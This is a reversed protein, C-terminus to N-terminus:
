ELEDNFLYEIKKKPDPKKKTTKKKGGTINLCWELTEPSGKFSYGQQQYYELRKKAQRSFLSYEDVIDIITPIHKREHPKQRLIRGVSQIIDSKPSALVLTDMGPIDMGESNHVVVDTIIFNHHIPVEIDCLNINQHNVLYVDLVEVQNWDSNNQHFTNRVLERFSRRKNRDRFPISKYFDFTDVIYLRSYTSHSDSTDFFHHSTIGMRWLLYKTQNWMRKNKVELYVRGEEQSVMGYTDFYGALFHKLQHEPLCMIEKSFVFSKTQNADTLYNHSIWTSGLTWLENNSAPCDKTEYLHTKKPSMLKHVGPVLYQAKVWGFTTLFQHDASTIIQGLGHSVCVCPKPETYGFARIRPMTVFTHNVTDYAVVSPKLNRLGVTRLTFEEGTIWDVLLTNDSLCAMSFTGLLVDAGESTKLEEEKMGGMYFGVSRTEDKVLNDKLTELHARRESLILTKRKPEKELLDYLTKLLLEDRPQYNVIDTIMAAVNAKGNFMLRERGYGSGPEQGTEAKVVMVNVDADKHRKAIWTPKGLHWEFVKSLGDKRQLTASLGLSVRSTIKSLARSFVEAGTHHCEDIIVLGFRAFLEPPYDDKMALSQLSAIVIDKDEVDVVKQKILGVRADPIFQGIRERWQNMLFEKHCVVLTKKKLITSIYLSVVTKGGGCQLSIIGGRRLPDESAEIFSAVVPEQEPRVSGQFVLRPADDGTPLSDETPRGFHKLGYAKPVYIKKSSERYVPFEQVLNAGPADPNVHPKVTLKQRLAELFVEKEESPLSAKDIGYGRQSLSTKM